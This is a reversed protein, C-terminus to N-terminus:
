SNSCVTKESLLKEYKALDEKNIKSDKTVIKIDSLLKSEEISFKYGYIEGNSTCLVIQDEGSSNLDGLLLKSIENKLIVEYLIDGNKEARIQLKGSSLGCIIEEYGDNNFDKSVVSNLQGKEKKKWVREARDYLGITGNELGYVFKSNAISHILVIKTNENIESINNENKYMRIAFDDTGVILEHFSDNDVDNLSLCVTNGGTVTWFKEEGHSDFGQLSCNGGVICMSFNFNSFYGSTLCYVGDLIDKDFLTKNELLDYCMLSTPSGIYLCERDVLSGFCLATVEKNLNLLSTHGKGESNENKYHPNYITIKGGLTAFCLSSNVGDFKGLCALNNLIPTNMEFHYITTLM